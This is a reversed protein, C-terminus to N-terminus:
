AGRALIIVLALAGTHHMGCAAALAASRRLRGHTHLLQHIGQQLADPQRCAVATAAAAAAAAAATLAALGFCLGEQKVDVVAECDFPLACDHCTPTTQRSPHLLPPTAGAGTHTTPRWCGM